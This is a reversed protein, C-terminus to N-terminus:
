QHKLLCCYSSHHISLLAANMWAMWIFSLHVYWVRSHKTIVRLTTIMRYVIHKHHEDSRSHSIQSILIVHTLTTCVPSLSHCAHNCKLSRWWHFSCAICFFALRNIIFLIFFPFGLRNVLPFNAEDDDGIFISILWFIESIVTWKGWCVLSYVLQKNYM